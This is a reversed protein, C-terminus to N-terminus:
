TPSAGPRWTSCGSSTRPTTRWCGCGPRAARWGPPRRPGSGSRAGSRPRTASSWCWGPSGGPPTGSPRPATPSPASWGTARSCSPTTPSASWRAASWCWRSRTACRAAGSRTSSRPLGRRAAAGQGGRRALRHAARGGPEHARGARGRRHRGGRRRHQHAHGRAPRAGRHPARQAEVEASVDHGLAMCAAAARRAGGPTIRVEAEVVRGDRGRMRSRRSVAQGARLARGSRGCWRPTWIRSWPRLRSRGLLEAESRGLLFCAAENAQVIRGDLDHVVVLDSAQESWPASSSGPRASRGTWRTASPGTPSGCWRGSSRSGRRPHSLGLGGAGPPARGPAHGAAGAGAGDRRAPGPRGALDGGPDPLGDLGTMRVAALREGATMTAMADTMGLTTRAAANMGLVAARRDVVM